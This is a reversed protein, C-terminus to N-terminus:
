AITSLGPHQSLAREGKRCRTAVTVLIKGESNAVLFTGSETGPAVCTDSSVGRQEIVKWPVRPPAALRSPVQEAGLPRLSHMFDDYGVDTVVRFRNSSGVITKAGEWFNQRGRTVVTALRAVSYIWGIM